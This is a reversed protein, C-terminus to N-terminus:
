KRITVPQERFPSHLGGRKNIRNALKERIIEKEEELLLRSANIDFRLEIRTSVKNVHQGGPGGSRSASFALESEFNRENLM